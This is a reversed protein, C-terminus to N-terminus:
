IADHVLEKKESRQLWLLGGLVVLLLAIGQTGSLLGNLISGRGDDGRYFEIVFRAAGFLFMWAGMVEGAQRARPLLWLLLACLALEVAAEYLQTPHLRVGLPAGSWMAAYKNHFTVGWPLTTPLGYACGAAFCGVCSLAHGLAVAPALADLTRLLPMRKWLLYLLCVVFAIALGGYFVIGSNLTAASLMLFPFRRFDQWNRAVLIVRSGVFASFVALLGLNWLVNADLRLRQATRTALLMAAILGLAAFAGYSSVTIPGFEFLRPYVPFILRTLPM